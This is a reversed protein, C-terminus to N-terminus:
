KHSKAIQRLIEPFNTGIKVFGLTQTGAVITRTTSFFSNRSGRAGIIYKRLRALVGCREDATTKQFKDTSKRFPFVRVAIELYKMGLDRYYTRARHWDQEQRVGQQVMANLSFVFVKRLAPTQEVKEVCDNLLIKSRVYEFMQEFEETDNTYDDSQLIKKDMCLCLQPPIGADDCSRWNSHIHRLLSAGALAEEEATKRQDDDREKVPSAAFSVNAIDMLTMGIDRTTVLRNVNYGMAVNQDPNKRLFKEPLKIAFLPSREEVRATFLEDEVKVETDMLSLYDHHVNTLARIYHMSFHCREKVRLLANKWNELSEYSAVHGDPLCHGESIRKNYSYFPRLDHEADLSMNGLLSSFDGIEESLYTLCQRDRMTDWLFAGDDNRSDGGRLISLLNANSDDTITPAKIPNKMEM